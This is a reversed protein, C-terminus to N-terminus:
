DPDPRQVRDIVLFERRGKTRELKLGLQEELATFISPGREIDTPIPGVPAGGFVGRRISEDLGFTLTINFRGSVGTQDLVFRDLVSSLTENAFRTLTEGGLIWKRNAGDGIATYNGCIPKPGNNLAMVEERSLNRAAEIDTCGDGAIPNIKLGGKAVTLAYMPAEETGRHTQLHFREALLTRLMPGMMTERTAAGDAKAEITYKEAHMWGPGGRIHDPDAPHSNLLPHEMNGIGAYAFYIIRDLPICDIRIRGPSPMRWEQRRQGGTYPEERCSKVSAVEFKQAAQDAPQRAATVIRLSSMAAVLAVASACATAIWAPGAPGRRQRRDLLARVRSPLDGRTAMAVLSASRADLLRQALMVLQDAYADPEARRLVADDCAREAELVFQRRVIWVLPHFWYCAAIARAISQTLWDARRVHELEHVLARHLDAGSWSPADIPLVITPRAVCWTM